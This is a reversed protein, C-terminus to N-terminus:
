LKIKVKEKLRLVTKKKAQKMAKIFFKMDNLTNFWLKVPNETFGWIEGDETYYVERLEIWMTYHKKGNDINKNKFYERVEVLRYNFWGDGVEEALKDYIKEALKDYKEMEDEKKKM